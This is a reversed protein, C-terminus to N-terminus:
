NESSNKKRKSNLGEVKNQVNKILNFTGEGDKSLIANDLMQAFYRINEQM